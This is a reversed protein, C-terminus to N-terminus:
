PRDVVPFISVVIGPGIVVPGGAPHEAIATAAERSLGAAVLRRIRRQITADSPPTIVVLAATSM